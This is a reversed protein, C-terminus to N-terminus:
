IDLQIDASRRFECGRSRSLKAVNRSNGSRVGEVWVPFLFYFPADELKKLLSEVFM